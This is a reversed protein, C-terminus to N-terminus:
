KWLTEIQFNDWHRLEDEQLGISLSMIQIGGRLLKIFHLVLPTEKPTELGTM